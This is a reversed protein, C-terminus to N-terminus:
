QTGTMYAKLSDLQKQQAKTYGGEGKDGTWGPNVNPFLYGRIYEQAQVRPLWKEFPEGGIDHNEEEQRKYVARAAAIQEPTMSKVFSETAAQYHPDSDYLAHLSESAVTDPFLTPDSMSKESRLQINWQGAMPNSKDDPEYTESEYPGTGTTLAIPLQSIAPYKEKAAGVAMNLLQPDLAAGRNAMSPTPSVTPAGQPQQTQPQFLSMLRDM